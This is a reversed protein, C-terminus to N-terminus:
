QGYGCGTSPVARLKPPPMTIVLGEAPAREHVLINTQELTEIPIYAWIFEEGRGAADRYRHNGDSVELDYGCVIPPRSLPNMKGYRAQKKESRQNHDDDGPKLDTIAVKVLEAETGHFYEEIMEESVYTPCNESIYAAIEREDKLLAPWTITKPM